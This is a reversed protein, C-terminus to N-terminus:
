FSLDKKCIEKDKLIEDDFKRIQQIFDDLLNYKEESSALQLEENRLKKFINEFM